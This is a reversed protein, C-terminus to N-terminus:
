AIVRARREEEFDGVVSRVPGILIRILGDVAM